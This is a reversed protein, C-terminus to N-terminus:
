VKGKLSRPNFFHSELSWLLGKNEFTGHRALTKDEMAFYTLLEAM